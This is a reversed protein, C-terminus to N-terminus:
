VVFWQATAAGFASALCGCWVMLYAFTRPKWNPIASSLLCAALHCPALLVLNWQLFGFDGFEFFFWFGASVPLATIMPLLFHIPADYFFVGIPFILWFGLAGLVRARTPHFLVRAPLPSLSWIATLLGLAFSPLVMGLPARWGTPLFVANRAQPLTEIWPGLALGYLLSAAVWFILSMILWRRRLRHRPFPPFESM